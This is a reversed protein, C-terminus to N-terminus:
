VESRVATRSKEGEAAAVAPAGKSPEEEARVARALERALVSVYRAVFWRVPALAVAREIASLALASVGSPAAAGPPRDGNASSGDRARQALLKLGPAVVGM